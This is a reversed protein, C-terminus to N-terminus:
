TAAVGMAAAEVAVLEVVAVKAAVVKAAAVKVAVAEQENSTEIATAALNKQHWNATATTLVSQQATSHQQQGAVAMSDEQLSTAGSHMSRTSNNTNSIINSM